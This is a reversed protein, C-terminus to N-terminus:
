FGQKLNLLENHGLINYVEGIKGKQLILDVAVCHEKVYLWDRINQRRGYVPLSLDCLANTIM